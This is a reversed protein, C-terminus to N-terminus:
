GLFEKIINSFRHFGVIENNSCLNRINKHWTIETSCRYNTIIFNMFEEWDPAVKRVNPSFRFVIYMGEYYALLHSLLPERIYFGPRSIIDSVIGTADIYESEGDYLEVQNTSSYEQYDIRSRSWAEIDNLGQNKLYISTICDAKHCDYKVKVYEIYNNLKNVNRFAKLLRFGCFLGGLYSEYSSFGGYGYLGGHAEFYGYLLDKEMNM